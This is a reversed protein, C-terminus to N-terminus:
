CSQPPGQWWGPVGTGQTVMGDAGIDVWLTPFGAAQGRTYITRLAQVGADQPSRDLLVVQAGVPVNECGVGLGANYGAAGILEGGARIALWATQGAASRVYITLSTQQGAPGAVSPGVQVPINPVTRPDIGRPVFGKGPIMQGIVTRLDEGYVPIPGNGPQLVDEKRAYGAIGAGPGAVAIFDPASSPDVQGDPGPPPMTGKSAFPTCGAIALVTTLLAVRAFGRQM